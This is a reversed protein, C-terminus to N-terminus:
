FQTGIGFWFGVDSSAGSQMAAASINIGGARWQLGAAWPVENDVSSETAVEGILYIRAPLQFELGFYGRFSDDSHTWNERVGAHLAISQLFDSQLDFRETLAAFVGADEILDDGIHGYGGVSVQPIWGDHKLLRVRVEPGAAFVTGQPTDTLFLLLAGAELWDTIGYSLLGGHAMTGDFDFDPLFFCYQATFAGQPLTASTPNIFMGSPGTLTVLGRNAEYVEASSTSPTSLITPGAILGPGSLLAAAMFLQFLSHGKM